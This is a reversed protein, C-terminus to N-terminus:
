AVLMIKKNISRDLSDIIPKKRDNRLFGALENYICKTSYSSFKINKSADFTDVAHELGIEGISVLDKKDYNNNEFYRMVIYIVFRMNHVILKDRAEKSGNHMENFLKLEDSSSLRKPLKEYFYLSSEM